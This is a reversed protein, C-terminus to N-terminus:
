RVMSLSSCVFPTLAHAIAGATGALMVVAGFRLSFGLAGGFAVAALKFVQNALIGVLIAGVAAETALGSMTLRGVALTVADVDVLGATAAFVGLGYSGLGRSILNAGITLVVLVVAFRAVSWLDLPSKIAPYPATAASSAAPRALVWACGLCVAASATLAPLLHAAVASSFLSAVAGCRILSVAAALAAAAAGSSADLEASRVRRGLDITVVTSSVIAGALAGIMLGARQGLARLAVYGVFSASAILITLWWL